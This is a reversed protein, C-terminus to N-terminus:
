HRGNLKKENKKESFKSTKRANVFFRTLIAACEQEKLGSFFVLDRYTTPLMSPEVTVGFLSSTAGYYIGAMRSLSALGFCMMCPQLTVFMWCGDLRWTALKKCARRIALVEAHGTQCGLAETQNSARALIKGHADIIVAGIPVEGRIFARKAMAIAQAMMSNNRDQQIMTAQSQKNKVKFSCWYVL